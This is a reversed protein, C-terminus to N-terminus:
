RNKRKKLHGHRPRKEHCRECCSALNGMVTKGGQSVPIIHHAELKRVGDEYGKGCFRCRYGDRQKVKRSIEDWDSTYAEEFSRRIRSTTGRGRVGKRREPSKYTKPIKRKGPPM